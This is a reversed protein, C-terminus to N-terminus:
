QGLLNSLVIIYTNARVMAADLSRRWYSAGQAERIHGVFGASKWHDSVDTVYEMNNSLAFHYSRVEGAGKAQDAANKGGDAVTEGTEKLKDGADSLFDRMALLMPIPAM